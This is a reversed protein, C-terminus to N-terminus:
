EVYGLARLAEHRAPDIRVENTTQAAQLKEALEKCQKRFPKIISSGMSRVHPYTEVLDRHQYQDTRNKFAAINEGNQIWSLHETRFMTLRMGWLQEGFVASPHFHPEGRVMPMLSRGTFSAPASIGAADLLTPALDIHSVPPMIRRGGAALTPHHLIFPVHLQEDFVDLGHGQVGHEGFAEGHDSTIVVLTTDLLRRERLTRLLGGLLEDTYRIGGEYNIRLRDMPTADPPIEFLPRLHPPVKYDAHPQYTHLFFFFPRNADRTLWDLTRAIGRDFIGLPQGPVVEQDLYRDFGRAFGLDGRIFGDETIAATAWGAAAFAEAVTTAAPSLAVDQDPSIVYHACPHISTLMTMHSGGTSPFSSFTEMFAIGEAAFADLVPSTPARHGSFSLFDQRLTDLSILLVNLKAPANPARPTLLIPQGWVPYSFADAGGDVTAVLRLAVERGALASLDVEADQWADRRPVADVRTEWLRQGDTTEAHFTVAPSAPALGAHAIAFSVQLRAGAPPTFPGVAVVETARAGPWGWVAWAGVRGPKGHPLHVPFAAPVSSVRQMRHRTRTRLAPVTPATDILGTTPRERLIRMDLDDTERLPARAYTITREQLVMPALPLDHRDLPVTLTAAAPLVDDGSGLLVRAPCWSAPREEADHGVACHRWVSEPTALRQLEYQPPPACAALLLVGTLWPGCAGARARLRTM